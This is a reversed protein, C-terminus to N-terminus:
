YEQRNVAYGPHHTTRGAIASRRHSTKQTVHPTVGGQRLEEVFAHTENTRKEGHFDV